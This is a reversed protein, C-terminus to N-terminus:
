TDFRKTNKIYEHVARFLTTNSANNLTDNRFLLLKINLPQFDRVAEFYILSENRYQNCTFFYHKANEIVNCWSCFPRERLHNIFLNNNLNSCNNRLRAHLVSLNRKGMCLLKSSTNKSFAISQLQHKFSTTTRLNKLGEDLSNWMRIPSPICSKSLVNTCTFPISFNNNNRLPYGSIECALPPLLDVIYSLVMGYNVKHMFVNKSIDEGLWM